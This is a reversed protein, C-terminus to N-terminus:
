SREPLICVVFGLNGHNYLYSNSAELRVLGLANMKDYANPDKGEKEKDRLPEPRPGKADPQFSSTTATVSLWARVCARVYARVVPAFLPVYLNPVCLPQPCVGMDSPFLCMLTM